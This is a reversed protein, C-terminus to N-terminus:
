RPCASPQFHLMSSARYGDGQADWAGFENQAHSPSNLGGSGYTGGGYTSPPSLPSDHARSQMSSLFAGRESDDSSASGGALPSKAATPRSALSPKPQGSALPSSRVPPHVTSIPRLSPASGSVSSRRSSISASSGVISAPRSTSRPVAYKPQRLSEASASNRLTASSPSSPSRPHPSAKLEHTEFSVTSGLQHSHLPSQNWFARFRSSHSPHIPASPM